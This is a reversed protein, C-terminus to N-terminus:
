PPKAQADDALAKEYLADLQISSRGQGGRPDRVDDNKWALFQEPSLINQAAQDIEEWNIETLNVYGGERFRSSGNALAETLADAQQATIPATSVVATALGGVMGRANTSREYKEFIAFDASGLLSEETSRTQQESQKFLAAVAPDARTLDHALAADYIDQDRALKDALAQKLAASKEQTLKLRRFLPGYTANLGAQMSKIWLDALAPYKAILAGLSLVPGAKTSKPATPKSEPPAVSATLLERQRKTEDWLHQDRRLEASRTLQRQTEEQLLLAWHQKEHAARWAVGVLAVCAAGLLIACIRKTM